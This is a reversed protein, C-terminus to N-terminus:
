KFIPISEQNSNCLAEHLTNIVRLERLDMCTESPWGDLLTWKTCIEPLVTMPLFNQSFYVLALTAPLPFTKQM